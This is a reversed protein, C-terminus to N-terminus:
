SMASFDVAEGTELLTKLGALVLPWGSVIMSPMLSGAPFRDHIVTLRTAQAGPSGASGELSSLTELRFTVRSPAERNVAPNRPFQWTYALEEPPRSTEVVGRCGVEDGDVLFEIESGTNFDSRVRTCHWYQETFEPQTLAEWVAERSANIVEVFVHELKQQDNM